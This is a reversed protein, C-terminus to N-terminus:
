AVILRHAHSDLAPNLSACITFVRTCMKKFDKIAETFIQQELMFRLTNIHMALIILRCDRSSTILPSMSARLANYNMRECEAVLTSVSLGMVDAIKESTLLPPAMLRFNVLISASLVITNTVNGEEALIRSTRLSFVKEYSQCDIFSILESARIFLSVERSETPLVPRINSPKSVRSRFSKYNTTLTKTADKISSITLPTKTKRQLISEFTQRDPTHLVFNQIGRLAPHQYLPSYNDVDSALKEGWADKFGPYGKSCWLKELIGEEDSWDEESGAIIRAANVAALLTFWLWSDGPEKSVEMVDTPVIDSVKPM